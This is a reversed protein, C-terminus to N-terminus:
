GRAQLSMCSAGMMQHRIAASGIANAYVFRGRCQVCDVDWAGFEPKSRKAYVAM